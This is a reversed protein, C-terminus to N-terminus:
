ETHPRYVNAVAGKATHGDMYLIVKLRFRDARYFSHVYEVPMNDAAYTVREMTLVPKGVELGLLPAVTEDAEQAEMIQQARVLVVNYRTQLVQYLSSHAWDIQDLGPFRAAELHSSELAVPVDDVLRQRVIRVLPTGVPRNLYQAEHEGAEIIRVELVRSGPTMGQARVSETFGSLRQLNQEIKPGCSVFTGKGPVTYLVGETILTQLAQRVTMRSVGILESLERESPVRQDPKLVGDRIAQLLSNRIQLYLPEASDRRVPRLPLM